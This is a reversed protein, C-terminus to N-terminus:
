IFERILIEVGGDNFLHFIVPVMVPKGWGRNRFCCFAEDVGVGVGVNM